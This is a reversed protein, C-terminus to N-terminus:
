LAAAPMNPDISTEASYELLDPYLRHLCDPCIGHTFDAQSHDRVYTEVTHWYGQDDRIKKCHACIPLLGSLTRVEALATRLEDVLREREVEARRRRTVDRLVVIQGSPQGHRKPLPTLRLDYHHMEGNTRMALEAESAGNGLYEVLTPYGRLALAVPRGLVDQPSVHCIHAMTPNIDAIRNVSDLVMVADSLTDMLAAQAMPVVDLMGLRWLAALLLLGVAMFIIPSWDLGEFPALGLVYIVNGGLAVASAVLMLTLQARVLPQARRWAMVLLTAGSVIMFYCYAIFISFWAGHHYTAVWSGPPLIIESWVLGHLPNTLALAFTASPIVALLLGNWPRVRDIVGTYSAVFLAYLVPSSVTGVYSIQSWLLRLPVTRAASEFAAAFCWVSIAGELLALMVAGPVRRKNWALSSVVCSVSAAAFMVWSAPVFRYASPDLWM